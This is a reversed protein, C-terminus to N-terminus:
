SGWGRQSPQDNGTNREAEVLRDFEAQLQQTERSKQAEYQDQYPAPSNDSYGSPAAPRQPKNQQRIRDWVSGTSSSSSNISTGRFEPATPSADDDSGFFDSGSDQQAPRSAPISREPQSAQERNQSPSSDDQYQAYENSYQPETGGAGLDGAELGQPVDNSGLSTASGSALAEIIRGKSHAHRSPDRGQLLALQVKRRKIYESKEARNSTDDGNDEQFAINALRPDSMLTQLFKYSGFLGFAISWATAGFLFKFGTSFLQRWLEQKPLQRMSIFYDRMSVGEPLRSRRRYYMWASTFGMGFPRGLDNYYLKQSDATTFAEFEQQTIPRGEIAWVGDARQVAQDAIQVRWLWNAAPNLTRSIINPHVALEPRFVLYRLDPVNVNRGMQPKPSNPSDDQQTSSRDEASANELVM